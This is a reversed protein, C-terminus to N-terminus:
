RIGKKLSKLELAGAGIKKALAAFATKAELAAAIIKPDPQSLDDKDGVLAPWGAAAIKAAAGRPLNLKIEGRLGRELESLSTLMKVGTVRARADAPITALSVEHLNLKKLIRAGSRKQEQGGPPVIYGISLGSVDGAKLHEHAKVGAATNLNLKGRVQLGRADEQLGILKGVPEAMDHSWLLSPATGAAKHQAITDAFAGPTITDNQSDVGNFTAAYGDFVGVDSGPDLFKVEIMPGIQLEITDDPKTM